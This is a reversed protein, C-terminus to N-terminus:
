KERFTSCKTEEYINAKNGSVAISGAYCNENDNFTCSHVNCVIATCENGYDNTNNTLTSYHSSDLFSACCTQRSNEANGGSVNIRNAYCVENKNHSCNTVNCSIKPM